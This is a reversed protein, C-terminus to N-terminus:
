YKELWFHMTLDYTSNQRAMPMKKRNYKKTISHKRIPAYPTHVVRHWVDALRSVNSVWVFLRVGDADLRM